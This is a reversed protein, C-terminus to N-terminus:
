RTSASSRTSPPKDAALRQVLNVETGIAFTTPEAAGQDRPRIYHTSGSKDAADVVAM